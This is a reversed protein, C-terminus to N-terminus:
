KHFITNMSKKMLPLSIWYLVIGLADAAVDFLSFMRYPLFYQITEIAVGYVMLPLFISSFFKKGPFSFDALLSLVFFAFIHNLKDNIGSVVPYELPTTALILIGTVAATLSIRFVFIKSKSLNM